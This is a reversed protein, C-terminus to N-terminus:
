LQSDLQNLMYDDPFLALGKKCYLKAEDIRDERQYFQVLHMYAEPRGWSPGNPDDLYTDKLSLAKLLYEEVKKGGGYEEPTYFDSKGLALYARMNEPGLKVAKQYHKGSKASLTMIEGPSLGMLLGMLTGIMVHDESSLKEQDELLDIGARLSKEGAEKQETKMFYLAEYYHGYGQWYVNWPNPNEEHAKALKEIIPAVKNEQAPFSEVLAQEISAQIGDLRTLEQASLGFPLLVLIALMRLTKM